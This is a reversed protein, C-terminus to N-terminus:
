VEVNDEVFKGLVFSYTGLFMATSFYDEMDKDYAEISYLHRDEIRVENLVKDILEQLVESEVESDDIDNFLYYKM